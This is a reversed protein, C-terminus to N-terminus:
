AGAEHEGKRGNARDAAQKGPQPLGQRALLLDSAGEGGASGARKRGMGPLWAMAARHMRGQLLSRQSVLRHQSDLTGPQLGTRM